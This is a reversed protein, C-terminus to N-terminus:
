GEWNYLPRLTYGEGLIETTDIEEGHYFAKVTFSSPRVLLVIRDEKIEKQPNYQTSNQNEFSIVLKCDAIVKKRTLKERKVALSFRDEANMKMTAPFKIRANDYMEDSLDKGKPMNRLEYCNRRIFNLDEPASINLWSVDAPDLYVAVEDTTFCFVEAEAVRKVFSIMKKLSAEFHIRFEDSKNFYQDAEPLLILASDTFNKM